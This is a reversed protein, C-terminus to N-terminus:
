ALWWHIKSAPMHDSLATPTYYARAKTM